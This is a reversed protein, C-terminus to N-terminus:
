LQGELRQEVLQQRAGLVDQADVGGGDQEEVVVRLLEDCAGGLTELLLDLAAHPDRDAPAERPADGRAAPRDVDGVDVVGLNEVRDQAHLAHARQEAHRQEDFAGDEAHQV